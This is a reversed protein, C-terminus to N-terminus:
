ITCTLKTSDPRCPSPLCARRAGTWQLWSSDPYLLLQFQSFRYVHAGVTTTLALSLSGSEAERPAARGSDDDPANAACATTAASLIGMLGVSCLKKFSPKM